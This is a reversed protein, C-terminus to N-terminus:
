VDMNYICIKYIYCIVNINHTYTKTIDVWVEIEMRWPYCGGGKLYGVLNLKTSKLLCPSGVLLWSGEATM